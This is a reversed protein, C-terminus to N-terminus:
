HYGTYAVARFEEGLTRGLDEAFEEAVPTERAIIVEPDLGDNGEHDGVFYGSLFVAVGHAGDNTYSGAFRLDFEDYPGIRDPQTFQLARAAARVRREDEASAPRGDNRYVTIHSGFDSM